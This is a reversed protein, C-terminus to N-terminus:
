HPPRSPKLPIAALNHPILKFTHSFKTEYDLGRARASSATGTRSYIILHQTVHRTRHRQSYGPREKKGQDRKRAVHACLLWVIWIRSTYRQYFRRATMYEHSPNYRNARPVLRFVDQRGLTSPPRCLRRCRLRAFRLTGDAPFITWDARLGSV